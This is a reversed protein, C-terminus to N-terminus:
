KLETFCAWDDVIKGESFRYIAIAMGTPKEGNWFTMRLAVKDGEGFIDEITIRFNSAESGSEGLLNKKVGEIGSFATSWPGDTGGRWQYQPHIVEALADVKGQNIVELNWKRAVEINEQVSM